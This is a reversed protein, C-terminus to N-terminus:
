VNICKVDALAINCMVNLNGIQDDPQDPEVPQEMGAEIDNSLDCLKPVPNEIFVPPLCSQWYFVHADRNLTLLLVTSQQASCTEIVLCAQFAPRLKLHFPNFCLKNPSFNSSQNVNMIAQGPKQKILQTLPM